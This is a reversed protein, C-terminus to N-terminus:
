TNNTLHREYNACMACHRSCKGFLDNEVNRDSTSEQCKFIHDRYRVM